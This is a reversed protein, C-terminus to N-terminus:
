EEVERWEQYSVPWEIEMSDNWGKRAEDASRYLDPGVWSGTSSKFRAQAWLVKNKPKPCSPCGMGKEVPRVIWPGNLGGSQVFFDTDGVCLIKAWPGLWNSMREVRTEKTM